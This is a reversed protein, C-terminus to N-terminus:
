VKKRKLKRVLVEESLKRKTKRAEPEDKRESRLTQIKRKSRACTTELDLTLLLSDHDSYYPSSVELTSNVKISLPQYIYVHDICGGLEHTPVDVLQEFGMSKLTLSIHNNKKEIYCINIDGLIVNVKKLNILGEVETMVDELNGEQSRYIGIINVHTHSYKIIQFQDKTINVQHTFMERSYGAIGKGRGVNNFNSSYNPLDYSYGAESPIWTECLLLLSSNMLRYDAKVDQYHKQLSQVNLCAIKLSTSNKSEEFHQNVSKKELIKLEELAKEDPYIKKVPLEELIFLQKLEQVRSLIVHAQAAAFVSRLDTVLSQPKYVTLGQQKHATSSFCLSLPFQSVKATSGVKLNSKSLSYEFEIKEIPTVNRNSYKRLLHSFQKRREAGAKQDQFKVIIYCVSGENDKKRVFDIVEGKTGNALGDSVNLNYTLMVKAGIKLKLKDYLPTNRVKGKDLLPKFSKRTPQSHSAELLVEDSDIISLKAENIEDVEKNKCNVYLAEKPLDPHNQPRVRSELMEIDRDTLKGRSTRKLLEAYEYDSEQRHNTILFLTKFKRWLSDLEYALHWKNSMPQDFIYRGMVPQLQLLDGLLIVGVGGFDEDHKQTIEKLRFDLQYLMDAKVMSMEDIIVLQLNRLLTRKKDRDKDSLSFMENGFNFAFASHLTQGSIICAAAGTFTAKIIYPHDPNDGSKRLIREFWQSMVNIVTSKGSGAEGQVIYLPPQPTKAKGSNVKKLDKGYKVVVDVICRQEEDLNRTQEVLSNLELLDIRRYAKAQESTGDINAMEGPHLASHEPHEPHDEAECDANDQEGEADLIRGMESSAAVKHRADAISELFPMVRQKVKIVYSKKLERDRDEDNETGDTNGPYMFSTKSISENEKEEKLESENQFPKYFLLESYYYEHSKEKKKHFRLAAPYSRKKMMPPEGSKPDKIKFQEPLLAGFGNPLLIRCNECGNKCKQCSKPTTSTAENCKTDSESDSDENEKSKNKGRAPAYMKCFQAFCLDKLTEPRREYKELINPKEVYKGEKGSVTIMTSGSYAPNNENEM